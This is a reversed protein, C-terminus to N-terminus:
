LSMQGKGSSSGLSLSASAYELGRQSHNTSLARLRGEDKSQFSIEQKHRGGALYVM